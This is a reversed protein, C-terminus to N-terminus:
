KKTRRNFEAILLSDATAHTIKQTPFLRAALDKTINKNGGTLCNLAKQWVTPSVTDYPIRLGCLLGSMMGCFRGFKFTSAVGQKPMAHVRELLFFTGVPVESELIDRIDAENLGRFPRCLVVSGAGDLVSVAGSEGPDIGGFFVATREPPNM